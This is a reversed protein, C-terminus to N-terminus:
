SLEGLRELILGSILVAATESRLRRPGLRFVSFGNSRAMEIEQDTFGGEPGICLVGTKMNQSETLCPRMVQEFSRETEKEHAILKLSYHSTTECLTQLDRPSAIEPLFSRCSQKMAAITIRKCRAPQLSQKTMMTRATLLPVFATVGIETAKEIMWEFRVKRSVAAALTLKFLPEGYFRTKKLIRATLNTKSFSEIQCGYAHGLGDIAVFSDGTRKRHVHILHKIEDRGLSLTDPRIDEPRAYFLERETM